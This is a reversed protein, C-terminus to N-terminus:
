RKNKYKMNIEDTEKDDLAFSNIKGSIYYAYAIFKHNECQQHGLYYDYQVVKLMATSFVKDKFHKDKITAFSM